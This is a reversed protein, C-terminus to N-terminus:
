VSGLLALKALYRKIGNKLIDLLYEMFLRANEKKGSEIKSCIKFKKSVTNHQVAVIHMRTDIM